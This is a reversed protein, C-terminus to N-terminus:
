RGEMEVHKGTESLEWLGRDTFLVRKHKIVIGVM